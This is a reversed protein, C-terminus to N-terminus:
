PCPPAGTDPPLETCGSDDCATTGNRYQGYFPSGLAPKINDVLDLNDVCTFDYFSGPAVYAALAASGGDGALAGLDHATASASYIADGFGGASGTLSASSLTTTAGSAFIAGGDGGASGDVSCDSLTTTAGSAFIAGGDGGASGDVSCDSLTTTAGSAFIAGGNGSTATSFQVECASLALNGEARM